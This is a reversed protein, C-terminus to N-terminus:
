DIRLDQDKKSWIDLSIDKEVIKENLIYAWAEVYSMSMYHMIKIKERKYFNPCDEFKDLEKLLNNDEIEYLEGYIYEKPTKTLYPFDFNKYRYLSMLDETKCSNLFKAKDKIKYHNKFDRKLSGYIFLYEKEM